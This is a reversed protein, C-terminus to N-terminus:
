KILGANRKEMRLGMMKDARLERLLDLSWEMLGLGILFKM